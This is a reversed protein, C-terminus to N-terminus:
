KDEKIKNEEAIFDMIEDWTPTPKELLFTELDKKKTKAM